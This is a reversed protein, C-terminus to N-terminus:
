QEEGLDVGYQKALEQIVVDANGCSKRKVVEKLLKKFIERATEKRVIGFYEQVIEKARQETVLEKTISEYEEKSLVVSNKDVKQYGKKFMEEATLEEFTKTHANSFDKKPNYKKHEKVYSFTENVLIHGVDTEVEELDKAMEEIQKENDKM